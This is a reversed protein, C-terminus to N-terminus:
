TILLRNRNYYKSQLYISSNHKDTKDGDDIDVRYTFNYKTAM